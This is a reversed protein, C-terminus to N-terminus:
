KSRGEGVLLDRAADNDHAGAENVDHVSRRRGHLFSLRTNAYPVDARAKLTSAM